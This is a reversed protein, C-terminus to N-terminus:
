PLRLVIGEGHGVTGIHLVGFHHAVGVFFGFVQAREGLLPQILGMFRQLFRQVAGGLDDGFGV